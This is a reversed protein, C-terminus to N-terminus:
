RTRTTSHFVKHADLRRRKMEREQSSMWGEFHGYEDATMHVVLKYGKQGGAIRGASGAALQRLRRKTSDNVPQEVSQLIEDATKWDGDGLLDLFWKVEHEPLAHQEAPILEPPSTTM